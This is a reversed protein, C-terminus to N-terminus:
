VPALAVPDGLPPEVVIRDGPRVSGGCIVIGMVANKVVEGGGPFPETVSRKLGKLSREIKVCPTRLGTIEVVADDGFRLHTGASLSTLALGRTVINEGLAGNAFDSGRGRLEDVLEVQLLHVQRLNLAQPGKRKSYLHQVLTGCHADGEVGRGELLAIREHAQKNFSHM